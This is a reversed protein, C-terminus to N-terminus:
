YYYNYRQLIFVAVYLLNWIMLLKTILDCEWLFAICSYYIYQFNYNQLLLIPMETNNLILVNFEDYLDDIIDYGVVRISLLCLRFCITFLFLYDTVLQKCYFRYQHFIAQPTFYLFFNISVHSIYLLISGCIGWWYFILYNYYLYNFVDGNLCWFSITILLFNIILYLGVWSINWDYACEFGFYYLNLFFTLFSFELVNYQFIYCSSLLTVGLCSYYLINYNACLCVSTLYNYTFWAATTKFLFTNNIIINFSTSFLPTININFTYM